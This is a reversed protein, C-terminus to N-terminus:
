DSTKWHGSTILKSAVSEAARVTHAEASQGPRLASEPVPLPHLGYGRATKVAQKHDGRSVLLVVREAQARKTTPSASRSILGVSAARHAELETRVAQGASRESLSLRRIWDSVQARELKGQVALDHVIRIYFDQLGASKLEAYSVREDAPLSIPTGTRFQSFNPATM